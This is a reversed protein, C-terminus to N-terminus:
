TRTREPLFLVLATGLLLVLTVALGGELGFSGGHLLAMGTKSEALFLSAGMDMGSVQVGLLNGQVFNWASHIGCVGWIDDCRLMYLAAFLGFLALNVMSLATIGANGMHLAAFAVSSIGVAWARSVSNTLSVMFYGRLLFEEGAGQLVFGLFFLVLWLPSVAANFRFRMGGLAQCLLAAALLMATGWALGTLYKKWFGRKVMGMSRLSRGELFRCYIIAAPIQMGAAFLSVCNFWPPMQGMLSLASEMIEAPSEMATLEPLGGRLVWLATPIGSIIGAACQSVLLVVFFILVQMLLAPRQKALAGERLIVPQREERM